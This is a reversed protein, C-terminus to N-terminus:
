RIRKWDMHTSLRTHYLGIHSLIMTAAVFFTVLIVLLIAKRSLTKMKLCTNSATNLSVTSGLRQITAVERYCGCM